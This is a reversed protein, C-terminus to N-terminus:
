SGKDWLPTKGQEARRRKEFDAGLVSFMSVYQSAYCTLGGYRIVSCSAQGLCILGWRMERECAPRRAQGRDSTSLAIPGDVVVMSTHLSVEFDGAYM